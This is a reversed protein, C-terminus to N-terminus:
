EKGMSHPYFYHYRETLTMPLTKPFTTSDASPILTTFFMSVVTDLQKVM